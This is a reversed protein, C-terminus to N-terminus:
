VLFRGGFFGRLNMFKKDDSDSTGWVNGIPVFQIRVSGAGHVCFWVATHGSHMQKEPRVDSLQPPNKEMKM